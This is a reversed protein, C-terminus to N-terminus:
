PQRKRIYQRVLFEGGFLLGILLYAIFGNYLTWLELSGYVGVMGAISGNLLFFGLWVWTVKRTYRRGAEDLDPERLLALREIATPPILLSYGFVLALLLNVIVPYAKVAIRPEIVLLGTVCVISVAMVLQERGVFTARSIVARALLLGLLGLGLVQYSVVKLGTYVLLPYALGLVVFLPRALGHKARFM